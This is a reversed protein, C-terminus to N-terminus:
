SQNKTNRKPNKRLKNSKSQYYIKILKIINISSIVYM